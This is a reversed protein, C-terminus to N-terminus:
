RRRIEVSTRSKRKRYWPLPEHVEVKVSRAQMETEDDFWKGSFFVEVVYSRTRANEAGIAVPFRYYGWKRVMNSQSTPEVETDFALLTAGGRPELVHCLDCHRPPDGTAISGYHTGNLHSWVLNMPNWSPSKQWGNDTSEYMDGLGIYVNRAPTRRLNRAELRWYYVPRSHIIQRHFKPPSASDTTAWYGRAHATSSVSTAPGIFTSPLTTDSTTKESDPERAIVLLPQCHWRFLGAVAAPLAVLVGIVTCVVTIIDSKTIEAVFQQMM